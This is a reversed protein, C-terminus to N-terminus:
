SALDRPREFRCVVDYLNGGYHNAIFTDKIMALKLCDCDFRTYFNSELARGMGELIVLDADRALHNLEASVQRLDILPEGTGSSTLHIPLDRLSPEADIMEPWIQLADTITMDNLSALENAVLIVQTGRQALYRALPTMGLVFDAGANDVFIVAKTHAPGNLLRAALDDFDDVLWPRQPLSQRTQLFSLSKDLMRKATATVGMDFINGALAGGIVSLLRQLPDDHADIDKCVEPLLGIVEENDHHKIEYFPDPFGAERLLGDRMYDITLMTPREFQDPRDQIQDLFANFRQRCQDLRHDTEKEDQGAELMQRRALKLTRDYQTRFFPILYDLADRDISLDWQCPLYHWRPDLRCFPERQQM